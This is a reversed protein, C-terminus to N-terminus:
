RNYLDGRQWGVFGSLEMWADVSNTQFQVYWDNLRAIDFKSMLTLGPTETLAAPVGQTTCPIVSVSQTGDPGFLTVFFTPLGNIDLPANGRAWIDMAGVRVMASAIQNGKALGSTWIGNIANGQDNHTTIDFRAVDGAAAPGIWVNSLGSAYEKVVALTGFLAPNFVDLSVDCTDFTKGMRYDICFMYNCQTAGDLPVAIYLKFEQVNDVIKIVSSAKWNVRSWGIPQQQENLGSCLYTLPQSEFAGDFLYPGGETVIWVWPGGTQACVCNPFPAGLQDSVGIPEGWTSPSDSNDTVYGVWKDGTLYLNTNGPLPFAFGITRQNPMIVQNTDAAIQQSNNIDSVYLVTGNGYCMRQGYAVVFSPNFPGSGTADQALLLFNAQATDGALSDNIDFDSMSFVFNLTTPTNLPVPQEGIQGTQFDTPIFYWLNPNNSATGIMFLTAQVGGTASAGGDPMAPLSVSVNIQRLGAQTTFQIPNTVTGAGAYAGNSNIINGDTDTLTFTSGVTPTTAVLRTGNIATDGKAGAITVQQGIQLNNGPATILDPSTLTGGSVYVGNGNIQNGQLDTLELTDGSVGAVLFVGNIATDGTAGVGTVVDGNVFTHGPLTLVDPSANTTATVAFSVNVTATIAYTISTVPIGTYGTRNQYCFGIFRQGQTCQGAGGDVATWGTIVPAPRFAKDVNVGDFIECQSTGAGNVDYGCLYAWVDLPAFSPAQQSGPVSFLTASTALAQNYSKLNTGDQYLVLNTGNPTIWNFM